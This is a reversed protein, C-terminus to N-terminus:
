IESSGFQQSLRFQSLSSNCKRLDIDVSQGNSEKNADSHEKLFSQRQHIHIRQFFFFDSQLSLTLLSHTLWNCKNPINNLLKTM